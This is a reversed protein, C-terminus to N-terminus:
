MVTTNAPCNTVERIWSKGTLELRMAETNNDLDRIVISLFAHGTRSTFIFARLLFWM